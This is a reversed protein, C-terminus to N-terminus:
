IRECRKIEKNVFIPSCIAAILMSCITGALVGTSKLGFYEAFLLSLPINSIAQFVALPISIKMMELGNLVNAYTNCWNSLVCYCGGLLILGTGYDLEQGLWIRMIPRFFLVLLVTGVGLVLMIYHYKRIMYRLKKYEGEVKAKTTASWLPSLIAVYVSVIAGFLQNTASYPTVNSAGYLYSIIVNDTAFLVLACIQIVFFQFGISTLDVGTKIDIQKITPRIGDEKGYLIISALINVIIMSMGYISSMIFLNSELFLKAILVGVLNIIQVMLEMVSVYAARQLAFLVNKCLSLTFNFSVFVICFVVVRSLNEEIDLVGFIRNWDTFMAIFSFLTAVLLMVVSITMYASSILKRNNGDGKALTETLKNRLGNGIGLDFSSIWSLIMVITSWIGYKEIGLYNLSIPVYIYSVLMSIPKCIGIVTINARLKTKSYDNQHVGFM